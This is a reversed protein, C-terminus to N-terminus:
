QRMKKLDFFITAKVLIYEDDMDFQNLLSVDRCINRNSALINDIGNKTAGGASRRQISKKLLM